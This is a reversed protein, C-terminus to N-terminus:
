LAFQSRYSIVGLSPVENGCRSGGTDISAAIRDWPRNPWLQVCHRNIRSGAGCSYDTVSVSGYDKYYGAVDAEAALWKNFNGSLSAEWGNANRRSSTLGNTDINLCYYRGFLDGAVGTSIGFHSFIFVLGESPHLRLGNMKGTAKGSSL